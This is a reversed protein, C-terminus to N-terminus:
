GKCSAAIMRVRRPDVKRVLIQTGAPAVLLSQPVRATLSRGDSRVELTTRGRQRDLKIEGNKLDGNLKGEVEIYHGVHEALGVGDDLWYFITAVAGSTGVPGPVITADASRQWAPEGAVNTVLYGKREEGRVLCGALKIENEDAFARAAFITSNALLLAFACCDALRNM